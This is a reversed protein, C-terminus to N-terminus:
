SKPVLPYISEGRENVSGLKRVFAASGAMVRDLEQATCSAEPPLEMTEVDPFLEVFNGDPDDFVVVFLGPGRPEYRAAIGKVTLMELIEEKPRDVRFAVHNQIPAPGASIKRLSAAAGDWQIDLPWFELIGRFVSEPNAIKVMVVGLGSLVPHILFGCEFLDAYFKGIRIPDPSRLACHLFSSAKM